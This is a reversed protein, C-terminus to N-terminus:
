ARVACRWGPRPALPRSPPATRPLSPKKPRLILPRTRLRLALLRSSPPTRPFSPRCFLLLLLPPPPPPPPLLLLLLPPLFLPLLLPPPLLPPLLLLLASGGGRYGYAYPPPWSRVGPRTRPRSMPPPRSPFTRAPSSPCMRTRNTRDRAASRPSWTGPPVGGTPMLTGPRFRRRPRSRPCPVASCVLRVLIL